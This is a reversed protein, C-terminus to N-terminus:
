KQAVLERVIRNVMSGDARGKLQAMATKMVAGFNVEAATMGAIIAQVAERVEEESLSAPLYKALVAMEAKTQEILDNRDSKEFETLSDKRLKMEKALIAIVDDDTLPEPSDIEKNKIAARVMRIVSLELKGEEKAKMAAKMDQQLREQITM